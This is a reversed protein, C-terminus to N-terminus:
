SFRCVTKGSCLKWAFWQLNTQFKEDFDRWFQRLHMWLWNKFLFEPFIYKKTWIGERYRLFLLLGFKVCCILTNSSSVYIQILLIWVCIRFLLFILFALFDILLVAIVFLFIFLLSIFYFEPDDLNCFFDVCWNRDWNVSFSFFFWCFQFITM